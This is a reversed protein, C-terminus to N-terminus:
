AGHNKEKLMVEAFQVGCMFADELNDCHNANFAKTKENDTLGQWQHPHTYLKTGVPLDPLDPRWEVSGDVQVRAVDVPEQAPQELAKKFESDKAIREDITEKWDRTFPQELAEKCANIVNEIEKAMWWCNGASLHSPINLHQGQDSYTKLQEAITELHKLWNLAEQTQTNM